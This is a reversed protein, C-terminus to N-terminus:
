YIYDGEDKELKFTIHHKSFVPNKDYDKYVVKAWRCSSKYGRNKSTMVYVTDTDQLGLAILEDYTYEKNDM